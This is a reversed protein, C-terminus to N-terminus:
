RPVRSRQQKRKVIIRPKVSASRSGEDPSGGFPFTFQALACQLDEWYNEPNLPLPEVSHPYALRVLAPGQLVVACGGRFRVPGNATALPCQPAGLVATVVAVERVFERLLGEFLVPLGDTRSDDPLILEKVPIWHPGPEGLYTFPRFAAAAVRVDKGVLAELRRDVDWKPRQVPETKM